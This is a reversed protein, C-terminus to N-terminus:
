RLILKYSIRVLPVLAGKGWWKSCYKIKMTLKGKSNKRLTVKDTFAYGSFILQSLFVGVCWVCVYGSYSCCHGMPHLVLRFCLFLGSSHDCEWNESEQDMGIHALLSERRNDRVVM